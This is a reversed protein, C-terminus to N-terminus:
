VNVGAFNGASPAINVTVTNTTGDNNYGNAAATTLASQRATHSPDTGGNVSYNEWLDSAAAMAAADAAAQVSRRRDQILGGDMVTALVGLVALMSVAALAAISGRRNSLNLRM